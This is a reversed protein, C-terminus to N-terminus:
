TSILRHKKVHWFPLLQNRTNTGISSRLSDYVHVVNKSAGINSVTLWHGHGDHLIQIFEGHRVDFALTCGLSVDQLGPIQFGEKLTLQAACILNDNLWGVPSLLVSRDDGSHSYM